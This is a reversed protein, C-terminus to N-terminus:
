RRSLVSLMATKSLDPVRGSTGLTKVMAIRMQVQPEEYEMFELGLVNLSTVSAQDKHANLFDQKLHDTTPVEGRDVIHLVGGAKLVADALEYAKNQVRLRYQGSSGISLHQINKCNGRELHTGVLWVTIADIKGLSLLYDSLFEDSLLDSQLLTVQSKTKPAIPLYTFQHVEGITHLTTRDLLEVTFGAERLTKETEHLCSLNEDIGIVRFESNSNAQLIAKLGRGDGCGIDLLTAPTNMKVKTAMWAYCGQSEFCSSNATWKKVYADHETKLRVAPKAADLGLHCNKFKLGSGCRCPDNRGIKALNCSRM